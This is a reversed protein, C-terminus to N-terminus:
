RFWLGARKLRQRIPQEPLSAAEIDKTGNSLFPNMISVAQWYLINLQGDWRDSLVSFAERVQAEDVTDAVVGFTLPTLLEPQFGEGFTM